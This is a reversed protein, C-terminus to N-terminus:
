SPLIQSLYYKFWVETNGLVRLTHVWLLIILKTCLVLLQNSLFNKSSESRLMKVFMYSAFIFFHWLLIFVSCKAHLTIFQSHLQPIESRFYCEPHIWEEGDKIYIEPIHAIQPWDEGTERRCREAIQKCDRIDLETLSTLSSIWHPLTALGYCKTISLRQLTSAHALLERRLSEMDHIGEMYLSELSSDTVLMLQRFVRERVNCLKLTKLCPLSSLQMTTLEPCHSITLSSLLPSSSLKLSALHGCDEICLQSLSPLELYALDGCHLISLESRPSPPLLLSTLKPCDYIWLHSLLSSHLELSALKDCSSINFQSLLPSPPVLLSTLEGCCSINLSSLLPYSHLNLSALDSCEFILLSSLPSDLSLPLLLSTLKPCGSIELKSLLPFSHLELSALVICGQIQLHSLCPCSPPPHTTDRRWLEKLKPM